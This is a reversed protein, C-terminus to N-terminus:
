RIMKEPCIFDIEMLWEGYRKGIKSQLPWGTFIRALSPNGKNWSILNAVLAINRYLDVLEDNSLERFIVANKTRTIIM